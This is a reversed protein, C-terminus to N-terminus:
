MRAAASNAPSGITARASRIYMWKPRINSKLSIRAMDSLSPVKRWALVDSGVSVASTEPDKDSDTINIDHGEKDIKNVNM